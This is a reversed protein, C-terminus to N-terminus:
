DAMVTVVPADANLLVQQTTSGFLAKGTPSRRRGGIVLYRPDVDEATSLIEEAPTGVRGRVSARDDDFEGLTETVSRRAFQAASDMEQTISANRFEDINKVSQKYSEFQETPVVHLVVLHDGYTTALDHAVTIVRSREEEGIAALITM